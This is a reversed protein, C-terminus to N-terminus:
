GGLIVGLNVETGLFMSGVILILLGPLLTVATVMTVRPNMRQAKRRMYQADARRMDRSIDVLTDSLPAGLEEAQQIATVFKSLSENRNRRRLLEFAERRSTGLEMQQLALTFEDALVGPMSEAVRAVAARFSMGASVTVALVDLFDPLQSQVRDAREQGQVYLSLDTLGTFALVVTGIVPNGTTFLLLGLPGYLVVEGVKRRLYRELTLGDPRGAAEIREIVSVRVRRSLSAELSRSVPRGVAETIRHLVFTDDSRTRAPRAVPDNVAVRTRSMTLHLGYCAVLVVLASALAAALPVLSLLDNM